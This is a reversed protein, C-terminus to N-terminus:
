AWNGLTRLFHSGVGNCFQAGNESPCHGGPYNRFRDENQRSAVANVAEHGPSCLSDVIAKTDLDNEVLQVDALQITHECRQLVM